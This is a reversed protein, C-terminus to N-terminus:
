YDDSQEQRGDMYQMTQKYEIFHLCYGYLGCAKLGDPSDLDHSEWIRKYEAAAVELEEISMSQIKMEEETPQHAESEDGYLGLTDQQM